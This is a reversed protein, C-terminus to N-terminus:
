RHARCTRAMGSASYSCFTYARDLRHLLLPPHSPLTPRGKKRAALSHLVAKPTLSRPVYPIHHLRTPPLCILQVVALYYVGCRVLRSQLHNEQCCERPCLVAVAPVWRQHVTLWEHLCLSSHFLLRVKRKQRGPRASLRQTLSLRRAKVGSLQLVTYVKNRFARVQSRQASGLRSYAM